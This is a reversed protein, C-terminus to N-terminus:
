DAEQGDIAFAELAAKAKHMDGTYDHIHEVDLAKHIQDDSLGLTARAFQYFRKRVTPNDIWHEYQIAREEASVVGAGLVDSSARNKGRTLAKSRANHVTPEMNAKVLESAM